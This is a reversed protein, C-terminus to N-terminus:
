CWCRCMDDSECDLLYIEILVIPVVKRVMDCNFGVFCNHPGVVKLCCSVGDGVMYVVGGYIDFSECAM